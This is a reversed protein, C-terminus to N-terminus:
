QNLKLLSSDAILPVVGDLKIKLLWVVLDYTVTLRISSNHTYALLSVLCFKFSYNLSM